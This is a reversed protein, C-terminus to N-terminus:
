EPPLRSRLWAAAERERIGGTAVQLVFAYLDPQPVHLPRGNRALFVLMAALGVRKNGDV